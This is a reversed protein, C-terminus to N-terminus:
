VIEKLWELVNSYALIRNKRKALGHGEDSFRLMKTELGKEKLEEYIQISESLPVREDNDGQIIFLPAAIKDVKHIPSIKRLTEMDHELSGYEAERLARRWDATNQLFTVFNSIGVIDVGAKWLEPHETMASLVAFGGYSGGYIILRDGDITTDTEKLHLALHKIDMISDLRKEVNDLDLYKKGYGTSGRINPAVIAFGASAYFQMVPSFAPILQSEPGGHIMLITPWGKEPMEGQPLLRFYPVSLGDFSNFRLLKEGVFNIPNLGATNVPTANWFKKDEISYIWVSTPSTPTSLTIALKSGDPSVTLGRNWSRADGLAIAGKKPLVIKEIGSVSNPSFKARYITSYGEENMVYYTYDDNSSYAQTKVEWQLNEEIEDYTRFEGDLTLVALRDFNSEFDTRVLITEENLWRIPTWRSKRIKTQEETLETIEENETDILALEQYVNGLYRKIVVQKDDDSILIPSVIGKKPRYLLEPKTMDFPIRRRYIDLRSKDEINAIYYFGIKSTTIVRHKADLDNTLWELEYSENISGIQFNENGGRDRTFIISADELFRPDTCRDEEFTLRKPWLAKGEFVESLYIQNVGSADYVYAIKNAVPHWSAGGAVEISLFKEFESQTM